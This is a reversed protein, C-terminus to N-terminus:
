KTLYGGATYSTNGIALYIFVSLMNASFMLININYSPTYGHHVVLYHNDGSVSEILYNQNYYLDPQVELSYVEIEIQKRKIEKIREEARKGSSDILM